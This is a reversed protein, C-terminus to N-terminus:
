PKAVVTIAKKKVRSPKIRGPNAAFDARAGGFRQGALVTLPFTPDVQSLVFKLTLDDVARAAGAYVKSVGRLELLPTDTM